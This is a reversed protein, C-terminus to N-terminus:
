PRVEDRWYKFDLFPEGALYRDIESGIDPSTDKPIEIRCAGFGLAKGYGLMHFLHMEGHRLTLAFKLVAYEEVDLNFYDVSFPFRSGEAACIVPGSQDSCPVAPYVVWGDRKDDHAPRQHAPMDRRVWTVKVRESNSFRVRGTWAFDEGTEVFGFVRCVVCANERTCARLDDSRGKDWYRACGAGLMEATNRVLGRLSAGPISATGGGRFATRICLPSENVLVCRWTGSFLGPRAYDLGAAEECPKRSLPDTPFPITESM